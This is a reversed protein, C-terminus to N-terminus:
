PTARPAAPEAVHDIFRKMITVIVDCCLMYEVGDVPIPELVQRQHCAACCSGVDLHARLDDCTKM